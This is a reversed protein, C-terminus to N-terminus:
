SNVRHKPNENDLEWQLPNNVIYYRIQHLSKENRIVHEFYNRQWVPLGLTNRLQNIQKTVTSKFGRIITPISGSVPKGFSEHAQITPARHTTGRCNDVIIIIGHLHNPMIIYEDLEVNARIQATKLWETEVIKGFDNLKMEGKSIYGFICKHNYTCITVFYAGPQSYDHNKLRISKRHHIEPNYKSKKHM